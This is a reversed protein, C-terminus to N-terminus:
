LASRVKNLGAFNIFIVFMTIRNALSSGTSRMPECSWLLRGASRNGLDSVRVAETTRIWGPDRVVGAGDGPSGAPAGVVAM